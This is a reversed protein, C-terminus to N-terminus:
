YKKWKRRGKRDHMKQLNKKKEIKEILKRITENQEKLHEQEKQLLQFIEKQQELEKRQCERKKKEKEKYKELWKRTETHVSDNEKKSCFTLPACLALLIIPLHKKKM